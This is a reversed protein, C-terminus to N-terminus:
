SARRVAYLDSVWEKTRRKSDGAIYSVAGRIKVTPYFSYPEGQEKQYAQLADPSVTVRTSVTITRSTHPSIAGIDGVEVVNTKDVMQWGAGLEYTLTATVGSVVSDGTNELEFTSEIRAPRSTTGAIPADIIIRSQENRISLSVKEQSTAGSRSIAFLVAAIGALGGAASLAILLLRRM